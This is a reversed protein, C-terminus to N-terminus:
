HQIPAPAEPDVPPKGFRIKRHIVDRMFRMKALSEATELQTIPPPPGAAEVAVVSSADILTDQLVDIYLCTAIKSSRGEGELKCWGDAEPQAPPMVMALQEFTDCTILRPQLVKCPNEAPATIPKAWLTIKHRKEDPAATGRAFLIMGKTVRGCRLGSKCLGGTEGLISADGGSSTFGIWGNQGAAGEPLISFEFDGDVLLNEGAAGFPNRTFVERVIPGGDGADPTTTGTGGDVPPPPPPTTGTPTPNVAEEGACSVVSAAGGLAFACASAALFSRSAKM